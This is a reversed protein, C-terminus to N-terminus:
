SSSNYSVSCVHKPKGLAPLPPVGTLLRPEHAPASVFGANPFSSARITLARHPFHSPALWVMQQAVRAWFLCNELTNLFLNGVLVVRRITLITVPM